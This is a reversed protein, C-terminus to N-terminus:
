HGCPAFDCNPGARGVYTGNPCARVEMTCKGPLAPPINSTTIPASPSPPLMISSPPIPPADGPCPAFACNPGVRTVSSGDPCRHADRLCPQAPAASAASPKPCPAFDCYPPTRMVKSGDPCIAAEYPCVARVQPKKIIVLNAGGNSQPEVIVVKKDGINNDLVYENASAMLPLLTGFLFLLALRM